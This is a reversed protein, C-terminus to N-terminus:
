AGRGPEVGAQYNPRSCGPGLYTLPCAAPSALHLTGVGGSTSRCGGVRPRCRMWRPSWSWRAPGFSMWSDESSNTQSWCTPTSRRQSRWTSIAPQSKRFLYFCRSVHPVLAPPPLLPVRLLMPALTSSLCGSTVAGLTPPTHGRGGEVAGGGPAGWSPQRHCGALLMQFGLARSLDPSCFTPHQPSLSPLYLSRPLSSPPCPALWVESQLAVQRQM